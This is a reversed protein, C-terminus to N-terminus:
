KTVFCSGGASKLDGCINVAEEKSGAPIRVRWFTGKGAVDAKVINAGRDGIVSAYKRSIDKLSRNAGDESPQSSVQVAWGGAVPAPAIAATQEPEAPAVPKTAGTTIQEPEGEPAVASENGQTEAVPAAEAPEAAVEERPALTGDPKVVMTRVKRPAVAVTEPNAEAGAASPEVREESKTISAIDDVEEDNPQPLEMPEETSSVLREQTPVENSGSRSVTDYVTNDQNPVTTGGPNEPRVKVPEADAKVLAPEGVSSSGFSMAVAGIGGILALGGVIAAIFLGRRPRKAPEASYSHDYARDDFPEDDMADAMEDFPQDDLYDDEAAPAAYAQKPAAAPQQYAQRQEVYAPQPSHMPAAQPMRKEGSSMESLLNNFEADLDDFSAPARDEYAVDPIDLDDALAVASDYVDVTEIDPAAMPQRAPARPAEAIPTPERRWGSDFDDTQYKEAMAALAAFPDNQAPVSAQEAARSTKTDELDDESLAELLHQDLDDELNFDTDDLGADGAAVASAHSADDFAADIDDAEPQRQQVPAYPTARTMIKGEDAKAAKSVGWAGAVIAAASALPAEITTSVPEAQANNGLLANYEAELDAAAPGNSAQADLDADFDMDVDAMEAVAPTEATGVPRGPLFPAPEWNDNDEAAEDFLRDFEDEDATTEASVPAAEVARPAVDEEFADDMEVDAQETVAEIGAFASNLDFDDSTAYALTSVPEAAEDKGSDASLFEEVELSIEDEIENLDLDFDAAEVAQVPQEVEAAVAVVPQPTALAVPAIEEAVPESEVSFDDDMLDGMLEKELDVSFDHEVEEFTDAAAEVNSPAPKEVPKAAAVPAVPERPDFGMIKTLEAFPDLDSTGSHGGASTGAGFGGLQTKDAM